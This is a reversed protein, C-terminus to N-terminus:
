LPVYLYVANELARHHMQVQIGCLKLIQGLPRRRAPFNCLDGLKPATGIHLRLLRNHESGSAFFYFSIFYFSSYKKIMTVLNRFFLYNNCNLIPRKLRCWIYIAITSLVSLM